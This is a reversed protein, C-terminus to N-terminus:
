RVLWGALALGLLAGVGDALVDEVDASRGPIQSQVLEIFVGFALLAGFALVGRTGPWGRRACVGLVVFAGIHQAKDWVHQVAPPPHPTFALWCVGAAAALLLLRWGTVAPAAPM